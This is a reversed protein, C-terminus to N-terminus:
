RLTSHYRRHREPKAVITLHEQKDAESQFYPVLVAALAVVLGLIATGRAFWDANGRTVNDSESV